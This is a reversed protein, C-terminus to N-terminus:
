KLKNTKIGEIFLTQIIPNEIVTIILKRDLIKVNVDKFFGTEFLNKLILNLNNENLDTEDPIESFMIISNKSIRQNGDIITEDFNKSISASILLFYLMFIKFFFNIM